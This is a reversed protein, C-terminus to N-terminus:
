TAVQYIRTFDNFPTDQMDELILQKALNFDAVVCAVEMTGSGISGGDCEGLGTWGLTEALREELAHRKALATNIDIEEINYEVILWELKELDLEVFGNKRATSLVDELSTNVHEKTTGRDPCTGWHEVIGSATAWAEHYHLGKSDRKFLKIM